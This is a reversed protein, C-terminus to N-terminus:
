QLPRTPVITTLLQYLMSHSSMPEMSHVSLKLQRQGLMSRLKTPDTPSLMLKRQGSMLM